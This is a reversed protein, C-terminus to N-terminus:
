GDMDFSLWQDDDPDALNSSHTFDRTSGIVRYASAVRQPQQTYCGGKASATALADLDRGRGNSVFLARRLVMAAEAEQPELNQIAWKVFGTRVSVGAYPSPSRLIDGDLQWTLIPEDDRLLLPETKRDVRDPITAEYRRRQLGRAVTAIALGALDFLHTCQLKQEARDRVAAANPSVRMGALAMLPESAAPCTAFPFRRMHGTVHRVTGGSHEVQVRFHHFDDEVVARAVGPRTVIQVRRRFSGPSM